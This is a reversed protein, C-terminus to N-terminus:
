FLHDCWRRGLNSYTSPTSSCLQLLPFSQLTSFCADCTKPPLKPTFLGLHLPISSKRWLSISKHNIWRPPFSTPSTFGSSSIMVQTPDPSPSSSSGQECPRSRCTHNINERSILPSGWHFVAPSIHLVQSGSSIQLFKSHSSSGWLLPRWGRPNLAQHDLTSSIYYYFYIISIFSIYYYFYISIISICYIYHVQIM